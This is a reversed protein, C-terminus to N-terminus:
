LISKHHVQLLDNLILKIKQILLKCFVYKQFYGDLLSAQIVQKFVAQFSKVRIATFFIYKNLYIENLESAQTIIGDRKAFFM